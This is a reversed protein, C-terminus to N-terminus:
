VRAAAFRNLHIQNLHITDGPQSDAILWRWFTNRPLNMARNMITQPGRVCVGGIFAQIEAAQIM